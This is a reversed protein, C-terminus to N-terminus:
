FRRSTSFIFVNVGPYCLLYILFIVFVFVSKFIFERVQSLYIDFSQAFPRMSALYRVILCSDEYDIPNSRFSLFVNVYQNVVSCILRLSACCRKAYRQSSSHSSSTRMVKFLFKKRAETRQVIEDTSDPEKSYLHSKFDDSENQSKM